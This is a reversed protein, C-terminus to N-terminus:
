GPGGREHDVSSRATSAAGTSAVPRRALDRALRRRRWILAGAALPIPALMTLWKPLSEGRIRAVEARVLAEQGPAAHGLAHETESVAIAITTAVFGFSFALAVALFVHIEPGDPDRAVGASLLVLLLPFAAAIGWSPEFLGLGSAVAIGMALAVSIALPGLRVRM